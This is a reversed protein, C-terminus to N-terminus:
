VRLNHVCSKDGPDVRGRTDDSTINRKMTTMNINTRLGCISRTSSTRTAIHGQTISNPAPHKFWSRGVVHRLAFCFSSSPQEGADSICCRLQVSEICCSVCESHSTDLSMFLCNLWLTFVSLQDQAWATTFHQCEVHLHNIKTPDGRLNATVRDVKELINTGKTLRCRCALQLPLGFNLQFGGGRWRLDEGFGNSVLHV